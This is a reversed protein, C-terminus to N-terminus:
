EPREPSIKLGASRIAHLVGRKELAEYVDSRAFAADARFALRKHEAGQREIGTGTVWEPESISDIRHWM